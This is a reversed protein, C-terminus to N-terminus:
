VLIKPNDIPYLPQLEGTRKWQRYEGEFDTEAAKMDEEGWEEMLYDYTDQDMLGEAVYAKRSLPFNVEETDVVPDYGIEDRIAKLNILHVKGEYPVVVAELNKEQDHLHGIGAGECDPLYDIQTNPLNQMVATVEMGNDNGRAYDELDPDFEMDDKIICPHPAQARSAKNKRDASRGTMQIPPQLYGSRWANADGVTDVMSDQLNASSSPQTDMANDDEGNDEGDEEGDDSAVTSTSLRVSEKLRSPRSPAHKLGYTNYTGITAPTNQPAFHSKSTAPPPQKKSVLQSDVKSPLMGPSEETASTPEAPTGSVHTIEGDEDREIVLNISSLPAGPLIGSRPSKGGVTPRPPRVRRDNQGSTAEEDADDAPSVPPAPTAANLNNSIPASPASVTPAASASSQQTPSSLGPITTSVSSSPIVNKGAAATTSSIPSTGAAEDDDDDFDSDSLDRCAAEVSFHGARNTILEGDSNVTAWEGKAKMEKAKLKNAKTKTVKAEAAKARAAKLEAAMRASDNIEEQHGFVNGGTFTPTRNAFLVGTYPRARHPDGLLHTDGFDLRPMKRNPGDSLRSRESPTKSPTEDDAEHDSQGFYDENM